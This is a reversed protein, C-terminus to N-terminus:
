LTDNIDVTGCAQLFPFNKGQHIYMETHIKLGATPSCYFNKSALYNKMKNMFIQGLM